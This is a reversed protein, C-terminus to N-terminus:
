SYYIYRVYHLTGTITVVLYFTQVANLCNVVHAGLLPHDWLAVTDGGVQATVPSANVVAPTAVGTALLGVTACFSLTM